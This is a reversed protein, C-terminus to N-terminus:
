SARALGIIPEAPHILRTVGAASSCPFRPRRHHARHNLFSSCVRMACRTIPSIRVPSPHFFIRIIQGDSPFVIWPSQLRTLFVASTDASRGKARNTVNILFSARRKCGRTVLLWPHIHRAISLSTDRQQLCCEHRLCRGRTIALSSVEHTERPVRSTCPQLFHSVINFSIWM